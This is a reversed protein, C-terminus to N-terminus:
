SRDSRAPIALESRRWTSRIAVRGSSRSRRTPALLAVGLFGEARSRPPAPEPQGRGAGHQAGPRLRLLGGRLSRHLADLRRGRRPGAPGAGPRVTPRAARLLEPGTQAGAAAPAVRVPLPGENRVTLLAVGQQDAPRLPGVVSLEVRAAVLGSWWLAVLVVAVGGLVAVFRVVPRGTPVFVSPAAEPADQAPVTVAAGGLCLGRAPRRHRRRGGCGSPPRRRRITAGVEAPVRVGAHDAEVAAVVTGHRGHTTVIGDNELERYARAVTGGALGLDNALQRIAPLRTGSTLVAARVLATVQQRLQEYPPVASRPDVELIVGGGPQPVAAPCALRPPRLLPVGLARAVGCLLGAVWMTWRLVQVDSRQLVFMMGGLCMLQIALSSGALSHVAQSRIADDAAVLEPATFPQPRQM